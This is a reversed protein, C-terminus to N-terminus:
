NNKKKGNIGQIITVVNYEIMGIYDGGVESPDDMADSLLTGGIRVTHGVERCSEVVSELSKSSVSSEVFIAQIENEVIYNVLNVKDKIGFESVTSIGQLGRVTFDFKRGFYSFADHSTILIRKEKPIKSIENEAWKVIMSIDHRYKEYVQEYYIANEQDLEGLKEAFFKAGDMFLMPDFWIHPDYNGQFDSNNIFEKKNIGESWDIILKESKLKNFIEGMKGELHLGNHVIVSANQLLQIDDPTPKYLHPDVGPGMITKITCKKGAIHDVVDGIMGTTCVILIEDSDKPDELKCSFLVSLLLFFTLFNKLSKNIM